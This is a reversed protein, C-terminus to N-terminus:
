FVRVSPEASMGPGLPYDFGRPRDIVIKVPVRQVIKVFNGTANQAPLLAFSQGAGRQISDVHGRFSVGPYADIRVEVSQGAHMHVLQNEKFNATIWVENPVVSMLEEGAQAYNGVATTKHTVHGDIPSVVRAFDILLQAAEIQARAAALQAIGAGLVTRAAGLQAQATKVQQGTASLQANANLRASLADDLQQHSVAEPTTQHVGLYRAYDRDAHQAQVEPAGLNARAQALQASAVDIQANAQAIQAQAQAEAAKAQSLQTRASADDLQVLLEGAHVEQNDTVLVRMVQGPARPAVHTIVTDVYADDTSEYCRAVLRWAILGGAVLIALAAILLWKTTRSRKRVPNPAPHGGAHLDPIADVSPKELIPNSM